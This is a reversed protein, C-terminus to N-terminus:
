ADSDSQSEITEATIPALITDNAMAAAADAASEPKCVIKAKREVRAPVMVEEWEVRCTQPVYGNIDITIGSAVVRFAKDAFLKGSLKISSGDWSKRKDLKTAYGRRILDRPLEANGSAEETLTVEINLPSNRGATWFYVTEVEKQWSPIAQLKIAVDRLDKSKLVKIVHQIRKLDHQSGELRQKVIESLTTAM